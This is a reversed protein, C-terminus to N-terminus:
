ADVEAGSISLSKFHPNSWTLTIDASLAYRRGDALRLMLVGEDGMAEIDMADVEVLTADFRFDTKGGKGYLVVPRRRGALEVEERQKGATLSFEQGYAIEVEKLTQVSTLVTSGGDHRVMTSALAVLDSIANGRSGVASFSVDQNFPVFPFVAKEGCPVTVEDLDYKGGVMKVTVQEIPANLDGSDATQIVVEHKNSSASYYIQPTNCITGDEVVGMYSATSFDLNSQRYAANFRVLLNIQRNKVHDLLLSTPFEIKGYSSVTGWVLEKCLDSARMVDQCRDVCYRDDARNWDKTTYYISIADSKEYVVNTIRYEPIYGIYRTGSCIESYAQGYESAFSGTFKSQVSISFEITDYIRSYFSWISRNTLKELIQLQSFGVSWYWRGSAEQQCEVQSASLTKTFEQSWASEYPSNKLYGRWRVTVMFFEQPDKLATTWGIRANNNVDGTSEYIRLDGNSTMSIGHIRLGEISM